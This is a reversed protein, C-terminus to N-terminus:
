KDPHEESESYLEELEEMALRENRDARIILRMVIFFILGVGVPPLLAGVVQWFESM